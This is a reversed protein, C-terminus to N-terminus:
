LASWSRCPIPRPCQANLGRRSQAAQNPERQFVTRECGSGACLDPPAHRAPEVAEFLHGSTVGRAKQYSHHCAARRAATTISAACARPGARATCSSSPRPCREHRDAATRAPKPHPAGGHCVLELSSPLQRAMAALKVLLRSRNTGRRVERARRARAARRDRESAACADM